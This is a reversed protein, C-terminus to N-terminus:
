VEGPPAPGERPTRGNRTPAWGNLLAIAALLGAALGAGFPGAIDAASPAARTPREEGRVRQIVVSEEGAFLSRLTLRDPLGTEPISRQNQLARAASESRLGWLGDPPGAPFGSDSLERQVAGLTTECVIANWSSLPAAVPRPADSASASPAPRDPEAKPEIERAPTARVGPRPALQAHGRERERNRACGCALLLGIALGYQLTRHGM